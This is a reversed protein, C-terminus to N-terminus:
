KKDCRLLKPTSYLRINLPEHSRAAKGLATAVTAAAAAENRCGEQPLRVSYADEFVAARAGDADQRLFRITVEIKKEVEETARTGVVIPAGGVDDCTVSGDPRVKCHTGTARTSYVKETGEVVASDSAVGVEAVYNAAAAEGRSAALSAGPFVTQLGEAYAAAVTRGLADPTGDAVVVAVTPAAGALRAFEDDGATAREYEVVAGGRGSQLDRLPNSAHVPSALLLVAGVM